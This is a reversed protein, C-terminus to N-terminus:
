TLQEIIKIQKFSLPDISYGRM